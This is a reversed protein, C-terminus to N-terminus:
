LTADRWLRSVTFTWFDLECFWFDLDCRFTIYCCCFVAIPYTWRSWVQCPTMILAAFSQRPTPRGWTAIYENQLKSYYPAYQEIFIISNTSWNILQTFNLTGSSFPLWEASSNKSAIVSDIDSM